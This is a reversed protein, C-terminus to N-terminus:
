DEGADWDGAYEEKEKIGLELNLLNCKMAIKGTPTFTWPLHMGGMEVGTEHYEEYAVCDELACERKYVPCIKDM